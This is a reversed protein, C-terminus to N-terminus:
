DCSDAEEEAEERSCGTEKMLEAIYRERLEEYAKERLDEDSMPMFSVGKIVKYAINSAYDVPKIWNQGDIGM